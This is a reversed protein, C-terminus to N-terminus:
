AVESLIEKVEDVTPVRGEVKMEGDVALAPTLFVGRDTIANIEEVKVVEAEIGMEAVAKEVNKATRKCKACGTGFVEITVM